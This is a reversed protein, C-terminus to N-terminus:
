IFALEFSSAPADEDESDDVEGAEDEVDEDDDNRGGVQEDDEVCM